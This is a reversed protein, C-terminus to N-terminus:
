VKKQWEEFNLIVDKLVKAQSRQSNIRILERNLLDHNFCHEYCEIANLLFDEHEKTLVGERKPDNKFRKACIKVSASLYFTLAPSPISLNNLFRISDLVSTVNVEPSEAIISVLQYACVTDIDRDCIVLYGENLKDLLRSKSEFARKALILCTEVMPFGFRFFTDNGYKHIIDMIDKGLSDTIRGTDIAGGTFQTLDRKLIYRVGRKALYEEFSEILTSKGVCTIGEFSILNGKAM